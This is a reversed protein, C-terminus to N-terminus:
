EGTVKLGGRGALLETYGGVVYGDREALLRCMEVRREPTLVRVDFERYPFKPGGAMKRRHKELYEELGCIVRAPNGAAVTDPPISKSVVSASGV